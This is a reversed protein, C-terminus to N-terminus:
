SGKGKKVFIAVLSTDTQTSGFAIIDEPKSTIPKKYLSLYTKYNLDTEVEEDQVLTFGGEKLYTSTWGHKTRSGEQKSSIRAIYVISAEKVKITLDSKKKQMEYPM